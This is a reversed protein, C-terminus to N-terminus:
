QEYSERIEKLRRAYDIRDLEIQYNISELYRKYELSEKKSDSIVRMESGWLVGLLLNISIAAMATVIVERNQADKSGVIYAVFGGVFTLVAPLVSHVAPQRSLGTIVGVVLGLLAFSFVIGFVLWYGGVKRSVVASIAFALIAAFVPVPLFDRWLEWETLYEPFM